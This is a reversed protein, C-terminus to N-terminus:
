LFNPLMPYSVFFFPSSMKLRRLCHQTRNPHFKYWNSGSIQFKTEPNFLKNQFQGFYRVQGFIDFFALFQQRAKAVQLGLTLLILSKCQIQKSKQGFKPSTQIFFGMLFLFCVKWQDENGVGWCNKSKQDNWNLKPCTWEITKYYKRPSLARMCELGWVRWGGKM